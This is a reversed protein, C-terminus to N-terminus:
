KVEETKDQMWHALGYSIIFCGVGVLLLSNTYMMIIQGTLMSIGLIGAFRLLTM